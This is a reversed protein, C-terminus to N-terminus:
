KDKTTKKTFGDGVYVVPTSSVINKVNRSRCVPCRSKNHDDGYSKYETFKEGCDRCQKNYTPM